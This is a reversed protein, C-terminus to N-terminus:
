CIIYEVIHEVTIPLNVHGQNFVYGGFGVEDDSIPENNLIANRVAEQYEPDIDEISEWFSIDPGADDRSTTVILINKM